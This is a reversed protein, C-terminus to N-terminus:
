RAKKRTAPPKAPVPPEPVEPTTKDRTTNGSVWVGPILVDMPFPLRGRQNHYFQTVVLDVAAAGHLESHDRIGSWDKVDDEIKLHVLGIDAPVKLGTYEIFGKIQNSACIIADPQHDDLWRRFEPPCTQENLRVPTTLLVPPILDEPPLGAQAVALAGRARGGYKTDWWQTVALGIRRYGLTRLQHYCLRVNMFTDTDVHHFGALDPRIGKVRQSFVDGANGVLAVSHNEWDANLIEPYSIEPLILGHLGRARLVREFLPLRRGRETTNLGAIWIPDLKLGLAEARQRAGDYVPRTWPYKTWFDQDPHDNIWALAVHGSVERGSRVRAQFLSLLPDRKYGLREAVELVRAATEPLIRTDGRLALSATGLGVGAERAIDRLGIRKNM